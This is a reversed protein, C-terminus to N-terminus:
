LQEIKWDAPAKEMWALIEPETLLGRQAGVQQCVSMSNISGWMLATRVDKGQAIAVMCTSAFADGAGTRELPPLPDPYIPLYIVPTHEDITLSTINHIDVDFTYSGAPGDTIIPLEPGLERLKLLLHQIKHDTDTDLGLIHIAEEKNCFFIHTRKYMDRLAETGFKMQFTGPQFVLKVDPNNQLYTAVETHFPLSNEGLSSLYMYRPAAMARTVLAEPMHYDFVEHKILITREDKFWLVYHYNTKKGDVTHIFDTMVGNHALADISKQGDADKGVYTLLAAHLGLRASSVAANASNGVGPVEISETFPVKDGFPMCLLKEETEKNTQVEGVQLKIFADVVTDGIALIDISNTHTTNM